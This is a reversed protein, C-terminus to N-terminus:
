SISDQNIDGLCWSEQNRDIHGPFDLITLLINPLTEKNRDNMTNILHSFQAELRNIPQTFNNESQILNKM